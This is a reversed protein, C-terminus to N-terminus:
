ASRGVFHMVYDGDPMYPATLAVDARVNETVNLRPNSVKRARVICRAVAGSKSLTGSVLVNEVISGEQEAIRQVLLDRLNAIWPFNFDGTRDLRELTLHLSDVYQKPNDTALSMSVCLLRQTGM